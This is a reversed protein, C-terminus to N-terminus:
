FEKKIGRSELKRSSVRGSGKKVKFSVSSMVRRFRRANFNEKLDYPLFKKESLKDSNKIIKSIRRKKYFRSNATKMFIPKNITRLTSNGTRRMSNETKCVFDKEKRESKINKTNSSIRSELKGILEKDFFRNKIIYIRTNFSKSRQGETKMRQQKNEQFFRKNNKDKISNNKENKEEDSEESKKTAQTLIRLLPIKRQLITGFKSRKAKTEFDILEGMDHAEAVKGLKKLVKEEDEQILNKYKKSTESELFMDKIVSDVSPDWKVDKFEIEKNLNKIEFILQKIREVKVMAIKDNQNVVEILSAKHETMNKKTFRQVYKGNEFRLKKRSSLYVSKESDEEDKKIMNTLIESKEKKNKLKKLKYINNDVLYEIIKRLHKIDVCDVIENLLDKNKLHKSTDNKMNKRKNKKRKKAELKAIRLREEKPIFVAKLCIEEIITRLKFLRSNFGTFKKTYWPLHFNEIENKLELGKEKIDNLFRVFQHKLHLEKAFYFGESNFKKLKKNILPKRWDSGNSNFDYLGTSNRRFRITNSPNTNFDKIEDIIKFLLVRLTFDDILEYPLNGSNGVEEYIGEPTYNVSADQDVKLVDNLTKLHFSKSRKKIREEIGIQKIKRYKQMELKDKLNFKLQIDKSLFSMSRQKLALGNMGNGLRPMISNRKNEFEIINVTKPENRNSPSNLVEDGDETHTMSLDHINLFFSTEKKEIKPEEPTVNKERITFSELFNEYDNPTLIDQKNKNLNSFIIDWATKKSQNLRIEPFNTLNQNYIMRM